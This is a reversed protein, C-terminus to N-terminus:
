QYWDAISIVVESNMLGILSKKVYCQPKTYDPSQVLVQYVSALVSTFTVNGQCWADTRQQRWQRWRQLYLSIYHEFKTQIGNQSHRWPPKVYKLNKCKFLKLEPIYLVYKAIAVLWDNTEKKNCKHSCLYCYLPTVYTHAILADRVICRPVANFCAHIHFCKDFFM